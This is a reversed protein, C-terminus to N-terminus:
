ICSDDALFIFNCLIFDKGMHFCCESIRFIPISVSFYSCLQLNKYISDSIFVTKHLYIEVEKDYM